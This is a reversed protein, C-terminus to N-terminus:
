FGKKCEGAPFIHLRYVSYFCLLPSEQTERVLSSIYELDLYTIESSFLSNLLELVSKNAKVSPFYWIIMLQWRFIAVNLYVNFFTHCFHSKKTTFTVLGQAIHVAATAALLLM